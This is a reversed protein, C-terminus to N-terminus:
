TLVISPEPGKPHLMHLKIARMCARHVHGVKRKISHMVPQQDQDEAEMMVTELKMDEVKANPDYIMKKKPGKPMPKPFQQLMALQEEQFHLM